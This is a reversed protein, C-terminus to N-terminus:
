TCGSRRPRSTSSGTTCGRTTATTSARRSCSGSSTGTPRPSSASARTRRACPASSSPWYDTTPVPGGRSGWTRAFTQNMMLMAMDCRVGDCQDAIERLTAVQADRLEPAFANLQVVDPWAGSYPDRGNALVRGSVEVFAGPEDRLDAHTGTVLREPHESVWPHDPAVHNPVFDLILAVGRAALQQRAM